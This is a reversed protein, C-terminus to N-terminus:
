GRRRDAPAAVPEKRLLWITDTGLSHAGSLWRTNVREVSAALRPPLVYVQQDTHPLVGLSRRTVVRFGERRLPELLVQNVAGPAAASRSRRLLYSPSWFNRHNNLVLFGGPRVARAVATTAAARLRPEANAFFRFATVLDISGDPVVTHLDRVDSRVFRAAPVRERARDLMSEAVDVALVEGRPLERVLVETIRGTGCALDLASSARAHAVLEALVEQEWEWLLARFPLTEFNDDYDAGRGQHSVTYDGTIADPQRRLITSM